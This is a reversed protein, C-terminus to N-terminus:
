HLVVEGKKHCDCSCVSSSVGNEIKTYTYCVPGVEKQRGSFLKKFFNEKPKDFFVPIKMVMYNGPEISKFLELNFDGNKEIYQTYCHKCCPGM